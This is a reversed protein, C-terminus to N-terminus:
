RDENDAGHQYQNDMLITELNEIREEMAALGHYIKQIIEAEEQRHNRDGKSFEGSRRMKIILLVTGCILSVLTVISGFVIAVILVGSM